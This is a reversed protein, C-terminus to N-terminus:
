SDSLQGQIEEWIATLQKKKAWTQIYDRDLREGMTKIIGGIDRIHKTQHSLSYYYLKYLILDEPSHVYVEGISGGLDVQVRRRFAEKLLEDTDRLLFMEAKFGSSGHIANLPLDVREEQFNGLIIDPPLYIDEEELERSLANIQEVGLQIVLDVDQTSRPEGWSWAAVSGGILYDIGAKQLVSLIKKLFAEFSIPDAGM